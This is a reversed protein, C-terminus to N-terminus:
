ECGFDDPVNDPTMGQGPDCMGNEDAECPQPEPWCDPEDTTCGCTAPDMCPDECSTPDMPNTCPDCTGNAACCMPDDDPCGPDSWCNGYDDCKCAPDTMPDCGGGGGGCAPDTMPNCCTGDPMGMTGPECGGGGGGCDPASPDMCPYCNGNEDCTCYPDTMPDCSPPPQCNPDMPDTCGPPEGGGCMPDTMPDCPPPVPDDCDPDGPQMPDGMEGTDYPDGADCVKFVLSRLAGDKHHVVHKVGGRTLIELRYLEGEPLELTWTGDSRVPTAAVIEGDAVARVAIVGRESAVHGTLVQTSSTGSCAGVLCLALVRLTRVTTM